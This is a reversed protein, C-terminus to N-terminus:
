KARKGTEQNLKEALLQTYTRGSSPAQASGYNTHQGGSPNVLVTRGFVKMDKPLYRGAQELAQPVRWALSAPPVNATQWKRTMLKEINKRMWDDLYAPNTSFFETFAAVSRLLSDDPLCTIPDLPNAVSYWRDTITAPAKGVDVIGSWTAGVNIAQGQERGPDAVMGVGVIRVLGAVQSTRQLWRRIVISGQSYGLLVIYRHNELEEFVVADLRKVGEDVSQSFSLNGGYSAPYGVWRARDFIKADLRGTVGSLMSGMPLTQRPDGPWSEFTGGVAIPKVLKNM